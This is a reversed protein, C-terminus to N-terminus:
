KINTIVHKRYDRPTMHTYQKFIRSFHSADYFGLQQSIELITKNPAALLIKARKMKQQTVYSMVSINLEAKILQCIYSTSLGLDHSMQNLTIHSDLNIHIYKLIRNLTYHNTTESEYLALNIYTEFLSLEILHLDKLSNKQTIQAYFNNYTQNVPHLILNDQILLSVLTAQWIFLDTRKLDVEKHEMQEEQHKLKLHSLIAIKNKEKILNIFAPNFLDLDSKLKDM